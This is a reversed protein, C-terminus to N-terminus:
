GMLEAIWLGILMGLGAGIMLASIYILLEFVIALFRSELESPGSSLKMAERLGDEM